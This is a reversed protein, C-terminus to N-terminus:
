ASLHKGRWKRYAAVFGDNVLVAQGLERKDERGVRLLGLSVLPVMSPRGHACQFPLACDALRSVLSKCQELSLVDNFMVASRCARSNLMELIGQPCDGIERLWDHKQENLSAPTAPQSSKTRPGRQWIESRLLDIILRPEAACRESITPPLTGITIKRKHQAKNVRNTNQQIDYLIGWRAFFLAHLKFLDLEVETIEFVIPKVLRLTSIRSQLNLNSRLPMEEHSPECLQELLDEVKCREDAAHQDIIVLLNDDKSSTRPLKILIFKNELQFIVEAKRLDASSLRHITSNAYPISTGTNAQDHNHCGSGGAQGYDVLPVQELPQESSRFVPNTRKSALSQLWPTPDAKACKAVNRSEMRLSSSTFPRQGVDHPSLVDRDDKTPVISSRRTPVLLGSRVNLDYMANTTPDRWITWSDQVKSDIHAEDVSPQMSEEDSTKAAVKPSAHESGGKIAKDDINNGRLSARGSKIRSWTQFASSSFKGQSDKSVLKPGATSSFGPRIPEGIRGRIAADALITRGSDHASTSFARLWIVPSDPASSAEETKTDKVLAKKRLTFRHEVLWHSIMAELVKIVSHLHTAEEISQERPESTQSSDIMDIRLYLMPWKDVGKVSKQIQKSTSEGQKFRGDRNRRLREVESLEDDQLTGFSSESFQRNIQLYLENNEDMNLLPRFGNSIFQYQKTPAPDLSIAGKVRIKSTKASIPVWSAWSHPSIFSVQTLLSLISETRSFPEDQRPRLHVRRGTREDELSITVPNPWALTFHVVDHILQEWEAVTAGETVLARHKVRVPMNGFLNRVTVKTGVV